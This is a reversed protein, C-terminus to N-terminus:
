AELRLYLGSYKPVAREPHFPVHCSLTHDDWSDILQYGLARLKDILEDRNFVYQATYHVRGNQLTVYRPGAYLPLKSLIVHRPRKALGGLLDWLIPKEIYQVTGASLLIDTGDAGAFDSTYALREEDGKVTMSKGAEVVAPVDCVVWIVQDPFKMYRQYAYFHVGVNGGLDFVTQGAALAQNLWFMVPYDSAAVRDRRNEFFRGFEPVDFGLPKSAPASALAEAFNDFVGRFTGYSREQAFARDYALSRLIRVPPLDAVYRAASRLKSSDL